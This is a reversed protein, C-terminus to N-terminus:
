ANNPKESSTPPCNQICLMKELTALKNGLTEIGNKFYKFKEENASFKKKTNLIKKRSAWNKELTLINKGV